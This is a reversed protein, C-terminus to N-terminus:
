SDTHIWDAEILCMKSLEEKWSVSDDAISIHRFRTGGFLARCGTFATPSIYDVFYMSELNGFNSPNASMRTSLLGVRFGILVTTDGDFGSYLLKTM